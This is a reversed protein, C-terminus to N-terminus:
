EDGWAPYRGAARSKESQLIAWSTDSGFVQILAKWDSVWTTLTDEVITCMEDCIKRATGPALERVLSCVYRGGDEATSLRHFGAAELAREANRCRDIHTIKVVITCTVLCGSAEPFDLGTLNVAISGLGVAGSRDPPWRM